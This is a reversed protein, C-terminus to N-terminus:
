KLFYIHINRDEPNTYNLILPLIKYIFTSKNLSSIKPVILCKWCIYNVIVIDVRLTTCCIVCSVLRLSIIERLLLSIIEFLLLSACSHLRGSSITPQWLRFTWLEFCISSNITSSSTCFECNRWHNQFM